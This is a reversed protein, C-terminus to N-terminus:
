EDSGASFAERFSRKLARHQWGDEDEGSDPMEDDIADLERDEYMHADSVYLVSSGQFAPMEDIAARIADCVSDLWRLEPDADNHRAIYNYEQIFEGPSRSNHFM